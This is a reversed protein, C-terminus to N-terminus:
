INCQISYLRFIIARSLLCEDKCLCACSALASPLKPTPPFIPIHSHCDYDAAKRILGTLTRREYISKTEVLGKWWLDFVLLKQNRSIDLSPMPPPTPMSTELEPFDQRPWISLPAKSIWGWRIHWITTVMNDQKPLTRLWPGWIYKMLWLKTWVSWKLAHWIYYFNLVFDEATSQPTKPDSHEMSSKKWDTRHLPLDSGSPLATTLGSSLMQRNCTQSCWFNHTM